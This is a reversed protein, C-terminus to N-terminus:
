SRAALGALLTEVLRSLDDAEPRLASLEPRALAEAAARSPHAAPWLGAVYLAISRVLWAADGPSLWSLAGTLAVVIRASLALIRRKAAVIEEVSINHELIAAAQGSLACLMPRALYERTIAGAVARGSRERGALRAEIAAVMEELEDVLLSLLIAERSEFYRYINGKSVRSRRALESLSFDSGQRGLRRAAALIARRRRAKEEPKRARQFV